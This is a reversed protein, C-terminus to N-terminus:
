YTTTNKKEEINKIGKRKRLERKYLKRKERDKERKVPDDNRKKRAERAQDICKQQNKRYWNSQYARKAELDAYPMYLM